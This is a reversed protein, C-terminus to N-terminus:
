KMDEAWPCSGFAEWGIKVSDDCLFTVSTLSRCGWFAMSGIRKVSNPIILTHLSKCGLFAGDGIAEVSDPIIVSTLSTCGIFTRAGIRTVSKPISVQSLHSCDKFANDALTVIFNPIVVAALSKDLFLKLIDYNLEFKDLPTPELELAPAGQNVSSSIDDISRHAFSVEQPNPPLIQTPETKELVEAVPEPISTTVPPTTDTPVVKTGCQNCFLSNIELPHGCNLCCNEQKGGCLNCFKSNDPIQKECHICIM